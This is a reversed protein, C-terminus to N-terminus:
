RHLPHLWHNLMAIDCSTSFPIYDYIWVPTPLPGSGGEAHKYSFAATHSSRAPSVICSTRCKMKMPIYSIISVNGLNRCKTVGCMSASQEFNNIKPYSASFTAHAHSLSPPLISELANQPRKRSLHLCISLTESHTQDM